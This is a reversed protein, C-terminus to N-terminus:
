SSAPAGAGGFTVVTKREPRQMPMIEQSVKMMDRDVAQMQEQTQRAYYERREQVTEIPMRALILGGVGIVGAHVGDQITPCEFNPYEEARVLEFGERIRASLNKRDDYGAAESRIWRHIYGEPPPPADLTSPPKWPKRRATANRTEDARSIKDAM